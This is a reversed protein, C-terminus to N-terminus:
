EIDDELREYTYNRNSLGYFMLVYIIPSFTLKEGFMLVLLVGGILGHEIRRESIVKVLRIYGVVFIATYLIGYTALECLLTNTNHTSAYGYEMRSLEPFTDGVYSLGNGLIPAQLWMKINASISAFRAVTTYRRTNGFKDFIMGDASLLDTKLLLLILGVSILIVTVLKKKKGSIKRPDKILYLTLYIILAIYGTTSYTLVVAVIYIFFRYIKFERGYYTYFLLGLMLFMQYVGPERFIGYNRVTGGAVTIM